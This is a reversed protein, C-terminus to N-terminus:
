PRALTSYAAGYMSSESGAHAVTVNYFQLEAALQLLDRSIAGRKIQLACDM